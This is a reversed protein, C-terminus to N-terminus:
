GDLNNLSSSAGRRTTGADFLWKFVFITDQLSAQGVIPFQIIRRSNRGVNRRVAASMTDLAVLILTATGHRPLIWQRGLEGTAKSNDLSDLVGLVPRSSTSHILSLKDNFLLLCEHLKSKKQMTANHIVFSWTPTATGSGEVYCKTPAM